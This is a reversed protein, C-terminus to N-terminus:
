ENPTARQEAHDHRGVREEVVHHSVDDSGKDLDPPVAPGGLPNIFHQPGAVATPGSRCGRGVAEEEEADAVGDREEGAAAPGAGCRVRLPSMSATASVTGPRTM